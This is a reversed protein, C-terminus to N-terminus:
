NKKMRKVIIFAICIFFLIIGMDHMVIGFPYNLAMEKQLALLESSSMRDIDQIPFWVTSLFFGIILLIFSIIVGVTLLKNSKDGM